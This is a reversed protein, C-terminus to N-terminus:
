CQSHVISSCLIVIAHVVRRVELSDMVSSFSGRDNVDASQSRKKKFSQGDSASASEKDYSVAFKDLNFINQSGLLILSILVVSAVQFRFPFRRRDPSPSLDASTAAVQIM